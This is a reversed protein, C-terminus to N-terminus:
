LALASLLIGINNGWIQWFQGFPLPNVGRGVEVTFGPRRWEQIFWDKYGAWSEVYRIPQYGSADAFVRVIRESEAPELGEYGWYIVQGQSHYALVMRFDHARTFDAMARSEPESLPAPGPYGRPSPVTPKRAVEREWGAPFQNNLDVGRINAAWGRFDTSGQNARLVLDYYPNDRSIGRQVLEVGDPNVMPVLWLTTQRFLASIDFDGIRQGKQYADAYVELFKMLLPTTIWEHAHFSANYHVEKPGTGIRVAPISRGMVSDGISSVEIFPYRAQLARLDAMMADYGYGERPVVIDRGEPVPAATPITLGQGVTLRAPDVGPNASQLAAVTIGYRQAISWLTDGPQVIYTRTPRQPIYLTEGPQISAPNVVQPNAAALAQVSINFRQAIGWFTDGPRVMYTATGPPQDPAPINIVQGVSLQRADRIQPNAALLDRLTTGYRQAILYLTDGPRITYRM